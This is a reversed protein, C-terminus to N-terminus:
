ARAGDGGGGGGGGGCGALLLALVLMAGLGARRLCTAKLRGAVSRDSTMVPVARESLRWPRHVVEPKHVVRHFPGTTMGLDRELRRRYVGGGRGLGFGDAGQTPGVM